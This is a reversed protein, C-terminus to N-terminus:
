DWESADWLQADCKLCIAAAGCKPLLLLLKAFCEASPWGACGPSSCALPWKCTLAPRVNVLLGKPMRSHTDANAQHVPPRHTTLCHKCSMVCLISGFTIVVVLNVLHRLCPLPDQSVRSHRDEQKRNRLLGMEFFMMSLEHSPVRPLKGTAFRNRLSRM